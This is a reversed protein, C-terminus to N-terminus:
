NGSPSTSPTCHRSVLPAVGESNIWNWRWDEECMTDGCKRVSSPWDDCENGQHVSDVKVSSEGEHARPRAEACQAWPPSIATTLMSVRTGSERKLPLILEDQHASKVTLSPSKVYTLLLSTIFASADSLNFLHPRPVRSPCLNDVSLTKPDVSASLHLSKLVVEWDLPSQILRLM